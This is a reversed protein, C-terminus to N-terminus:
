FGASLVLEFRRRRPDGYYSYGPLGTQAVLPPRKDFLNILGFSLEFTKFPAGPLRLRRRASLDIYAQAPIWNSGQNAVITANTSAPGDVYTPRYHDFYQVNLGLMMPGKTWEAGANGRWNLPGDIYGLRSIWPSQPTRRRKFSPYWTANGYLRLTGHNALDIPWDLQLDVTEVRTRGANFAGLDISLIRGATYGLARDADTLPARVIRDGYQSENALVVALNETFFSVERRVDIRSYDISIRPMRTSNPNLVAGISLTTAREPSLAHSGGRSITVTGEAGLRQDGRSPDFPGQQGNPTLITETAALQEITPPLEGTAISGRLMLAPHPFM